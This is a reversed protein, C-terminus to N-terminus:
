LRALSRGIRDANAMITLTAHRAPLSPLISGDVIHLGDQGAPQGLVSTGNAQKGGMPLTGAFHADTGPVALQGGPLPYAGLRRWARALRRMVLTATGSLDERLGGAVTLVGAARDFRLRNHSFAGSFSTAAVLLAPGLAQFLAEGARRGLPLRNAFGSAPLGATEYVAGAVYDRGEGLGLFYSLQALSHSPVPGKRAAAPVLLPTAIVPNSLLPWDAPQPLLTAMLRSSGLTGAALVMRPASFARGDATVARWAGDQRQMAVVLAGDVLRFNAHTSLRALDQRSDYIAGIPCGWLCDNRLECAPRGDLSRSLVANRAHGLALEHGTAREYNSLLRRSAGGLPLPPQLPASAGLLRGAADEASGSIGIRRSVRAYSPVLDAHTIPWGELDRPSFEAAFAGWVRSLGGRALSGIAVFNEGTVRNAKAFRGIARRSEPVRLKPSLGDEVVLSELGPGLIRGPGAAEASEAGNAGDLMLVTRGAEVLPLAVSVGAPGSGIVVIEAEMM